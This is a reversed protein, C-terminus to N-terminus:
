LVVFMNKETKREIEDNTTQRRKAEDAAKQLLGRAEDEQGKESLYNALCVRAVIAPPGRLSHKEVVDVASKFAEEAEGSEMAEGQRGRRILAELLGNWDGLRELAIESAAQLKQAKALQTEDKEAAYCSLHLITIHRMLELADPSVESGRSMHEKLAAYYFNEAESPRQTELM